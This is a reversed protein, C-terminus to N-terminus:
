NVISTDDNMTYSLSLRKFMDSIDILQLKSLLGSIDGQKAQAKEGMLRRKVCRWDGPDAVKELKRKTGRPYAAGYSPLRESLTFPSIETTEGASPLKTYVPLPDFTEADFNLTELGQAIRARRIGLHIAHRMRRCIITLEPASLRRSRAGILRYLEPAYPHRYCEAGLNSYVDRPLIAMEYCPPAKPNHRPIPIRLQVAGQDEFRLVLYDSQMNIPM